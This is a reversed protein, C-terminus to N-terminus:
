TDIKDHIAIFRDCEIYPTWIDRRESVTIHQEINFDNSAQRGFIDLWQWPMTPAM